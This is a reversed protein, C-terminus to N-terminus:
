VVCETNDTICMADYDVNLLAAVRRFEEASEPLMDNQTRTRSLVFGGNYDLAPNTGCWFVMMYDPEPYSVIHWREIQPLLPTDDHSYELRILGPAALQATPITVIPDTTPVSDAGGTYTTNNIWGDGFRIYRAHQCPYWDYGGRWVDDQGCNVGRVVWWDGAFDEFSTVEQVTDTESALCYGDSPLDPFCGNDAMCQLLAEFKENGAGLTMECEYQCNAEDPLGSCDIMCQLIENCVPDLYCAGATIACHLTLCLGPNAKEEHQHYQEALSSRLVPKTASVLGVLATSLLLLKM